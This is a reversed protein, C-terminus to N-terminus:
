YDGNQFHSSTTVSQSSGTLQLSEDKNGPISVVIKNTYPKGPFSNEFLYLLNTMLNLYNKKCLGVILTLQGVKYKEYIRHNDSLM